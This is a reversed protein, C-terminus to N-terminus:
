SFLIFIFGKENESVKAWSSNNEQKVFFFSSAQGNSLLFNNKFFNLYAPIVQKRTISRLRNLQEISLRSDNERFCFEITFLLNRYLLLDISGNLLGDTDNPINPPFSELLPLIEENIRKVCADFFENENM